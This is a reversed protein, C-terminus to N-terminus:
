HRMMIGTSVYSRENTMPNDDGENGAACVVIVDRENAFKVATRINLSAFRGGLSMNIIQCGDYVAEVIAMAIAEDVGISGEEGFVRYDYIEADPAMLHITGAVHTGHDDQELPTGGRFWLQHKVQGHFGAHEADVGSDIVGVKIGKGTKGEKRLKAGGTLRIGLPLALDDVTEEDQPPPPAKAPRRVVSPQKIATVEVVKSSMTTNTNPEIVTSPVPPEVVQQQQQQPLPEPDSKTTPAPKTHGKKQEQNTQNQIDDDDATADKPSCLSDLCSGLCDQM